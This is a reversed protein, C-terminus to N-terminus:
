AHFLFNDQQTQAEEARAAACVGLPDDRVGRVERLADDVGGLLDDFGGLVALGHQLAELFGHLNILLSLSVVVGQFADAVEDARGALHLLADKQDAFDRVDIDITIFTHNGVLVERGRLQRGDGCAVGADDLLRGPFQLLQLVDHVRRVHGQRVLITDVHHLADVANQPAM